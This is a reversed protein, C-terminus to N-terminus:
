NAGSASAPERLSCQEPANQSFCLAAEVGDHGDGRRFDDSVIVIRDQM